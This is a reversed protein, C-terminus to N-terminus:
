ADKHDKIEIQDAPYTEETDIAKDGYYNEPRKIIERLGRAAFILGTFSIFGFIAYFAMVGEEAFHGYKEYTLDALVAIACAVILIATLKNVSGKRDVWAYMRGLAPLDDLNEDGHNSM